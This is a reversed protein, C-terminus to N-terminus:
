VRQTSQLQLENYPPPLEVVRVEGADAHTFYTTPIVGEQIQPVPSSRDVRGGIGLWRPSGVPHEESVAEDGGTKRGTTYVVGNHVVVQSLPRRASNASALHNTPSHAGSTHQGQLPPESLSQGLDDVPGTLREDVRRVGQSIDPDERQDLSIVRVPPIPPPLLSINPPQYLSLPREQANLPPKQGTAADVKTSSPITHVIANEFPPIEIKRTSSRYCTIAVCIIAISSLGIAM